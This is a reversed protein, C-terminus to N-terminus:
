FILQGSFNVASTDVGIQGVVNINGLWIVFDFSLLGSAPINLILEQDQFVQQGHSVYKGFQTDGAGILVSNFVVYSYPTMDWTLAASADTFIVQWRFDKLRAMGVFNVPVGVTITGSAGIASVSLTQNFRAFQLTNPQNPESKNLLGVDSKTIFENGGISIKGDM